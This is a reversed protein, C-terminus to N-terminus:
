GSQEDGTAAQQDDQAPAEGDTEQGSEGDASGSSASAYALKLSSVSAQFDSVLQDDVFDDLVPTLADMTAIALRCQEM